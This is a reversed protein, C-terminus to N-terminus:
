FQVVDETKLSELRELTGITKDTQAGMIDAFHKALAEITRTAGKPMFKPYKDFAVKIDKPTTCHPIMENVAANFRSWQKSTEPYYGFCEALVAVYETNKRNKQVGEPIDFGGGTNKAPVYTDQKVPPLEDGRVQPLYYTNSTQKDDEARGRWTIAGFSKLEELSRRVTSVSKGVLDALTNHSPYCELTDNSAFSLLANYVHVASSSLANGESDKELIWKPVAMFRFGVVVEFDDNAEM